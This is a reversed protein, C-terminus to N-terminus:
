RIGELETSSPKLSVPESAADGAAEYRKLRARLLGERGGGAAIEIELMDAVVAAAEKYRGTAKYAIALMDLARPAAHETLEDAREALEVVRELDAASRNPDAKLIWGLRMMARARNPSLVVAKEAHARAESWEGAAVLLDSIQLHAKAFYPEALRSHADVALAGRLQGIAEGADGQKLAIDALDWRPPFFNDNLEISRNLHTIGANLDGLDKYARGLNSHARFDDPSKSVVDSWLTLDDRWAKNREYTGLGLALVLGAAVGWLWIGQKAALVRFGEGVLVSFAFMPLYLRHEFMLEIAVVSSEIALNIFFWLICFSLLRQSRATRIAILFIFLLALISFLTTLPDLLSHSVPVHHSLNLRSPLPLVLLGLYQM